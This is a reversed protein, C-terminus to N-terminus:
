FIAQRELRIWSGIFKIYEQLTQKWFRVTVMLALRNKERVPYPTITVTDPLAYTFQLYARPMHTSSTVLIISQVDRSSVWKASETANTETTDAIYDLTICCHNRLTKRQAASLDDQNRAIINNLSVKDLVGSILLSEAKEGLLLTFANEIRAPGGTLAIISDANKLKDHSPTAWALIVACYIIYGALACACLFASIKMIYSM